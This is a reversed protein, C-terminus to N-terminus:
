ASPLGSLRGAGIAAGRSGFGRRALALRPNGGSTVRDLGGVSGYDSGAGAPGGALMWANDAFSKADAIQQQLLQEIRGPQSASSASQASVSGIVFFVILLSSFKM